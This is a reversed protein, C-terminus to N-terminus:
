ISSLTYKAYLDTTIFFMKLNVLKTKCNVKFHEKEKQNQDFHMDFTALFVLDLTKLFTIFEIFNAM